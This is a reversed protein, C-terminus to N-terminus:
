LKRRVARQRGTIPVRSLTSTSLLTVVDELHVDLRDAVRAIALATNIMRWWSFERGNELAADDRHSGVEVDGPDLPKCTATPIGALETRGLGALPVSFTRRRRSPYMCGMLIPDLMPKIARPKIRASATLTLTRPISRVRTPHIRVATPTRPNITLRARVQRFRDM